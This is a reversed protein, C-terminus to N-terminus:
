LSLASTSLHKQFIDAADNIGCVSHSYVSVKGHKSTYVRNSGLDCHYM